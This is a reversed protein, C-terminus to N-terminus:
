GYRTFKDTTDPNETPGECQCSAPPRSLGTAMVKPQVHAHPLFRFLHYELLTPCTTTTGSSFWSHMQDKQPRLKAFQLELARINRQHVLIQFTGSPQIRERVSPYSLCTSMQPTTNFRSMSNGLLSAITCYSTGCYWHFLGHASGFERLKM